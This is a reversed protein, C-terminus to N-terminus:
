LTGLDMVLQYILGAFSDVNQDWKQALMSDRGPNSTWSTRIITPAGCRLMWSDFDKSARLSTSLRRM